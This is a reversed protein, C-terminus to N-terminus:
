RPLLVLLVGLPEGGLRRTHAGRRRCWRSGRRQRGGLGGVVGQLQGIGASARVCRGLTPLRSCLRHPRCCRSAVTVSRSRRERRLGRLGAASSASRCTCGRPRLQRASRGLRPSSGVAVRHSGTDLLGTHLVRCISSLLGSLALSSRCDLLSHPWERGLCCTPVGWRARRSSHLGSGVVNRLLCKPLLLCCGSFSRLLRRLLGLPVLTPRRCAGISGLAPTLDIWEVHDILGQGHLLLLLHELVLLLGLFPPNLLSLLKGLLAQQPALLLGGLGPLPPLLLNRRRDLPQDLLLILPPVRHVLLLAQLAHVGLIAPDIWVLLDVIRDLLASGVAGRLRCPLVCGLSRRRLLLNIRALLDALRQLAGTCVRGLNRASRRRPPNVGGFIGIRLASCHGHVRWVFVRELHYRPCKSNLGLRLSRLLLDLDHVDSGLHRPEIVEEPGLDRAFDLM